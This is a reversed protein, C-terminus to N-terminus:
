TSSINPAPSSLEGLDGISVLLDDFVQLIGEGETFPMIAARQGVAGGVDLAIGISDFQVVGLVELLDLGHSHGLTNPRLQVRLM